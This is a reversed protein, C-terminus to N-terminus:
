KKILCKIHPDPPSKKSEALKHLVIIFFFVGPFDRAYKIYYM